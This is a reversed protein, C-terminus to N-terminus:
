QLRSLEESYLRNHPFERVLASLLERAGAHDQNRLAAVALLLRAYPSLYHGKDATLRLDQIGRERDVQAGGLALLWRVPAAKLSLM